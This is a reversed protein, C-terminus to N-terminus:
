KAFQPWMEEVTITTIISREEYNEGGSIPINHHIELLKWSLLEGGVVRRRYCALLFFLLRKIIGEHRRIQRCGTNRGM